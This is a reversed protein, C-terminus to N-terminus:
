LPPAKRNRTFDNVSKVKRWWIRYWASLLRFQLLETITTFEMLMDELWSFQNANLHQAEPRGYTGATGM